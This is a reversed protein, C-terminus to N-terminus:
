EGGTVAMARDIQLSLDKWHAKTMADGGGRKLKKQLNELHLMAIPRIDTNFADPQM